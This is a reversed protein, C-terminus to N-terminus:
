PWALQGYLAAPAGTTVAWYRDGYSWHWWETPYNVLGAAELADVLIKRNERAEASILPSATYCAGDSEEPGANVETGMPLETGDEHCLTLDVAAGCVHPGIDPPSLSRSAQVFVHDEPWGPNAERLEQAYEEFYRVQLALPRYGEVVLLRLGGPLGRQAQEVRDALGQRLRTYAGEPDALRDDILVGPIDRADVLPDGQERVPMATVSPDSMLMVEYM